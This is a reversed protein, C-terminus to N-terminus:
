ASSKPSLVSSQPSVRCVGISLEAVAARTRLGYDGTRLRGNGAESAPGADKEEEEREGNTERRNGDDPKRRQPEAVRARIEEGRFLEHPRPM